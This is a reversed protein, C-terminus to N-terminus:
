SEDTEEIRGYLIADHDRAADDRGFDVAEEPIRWIPDAQYAEESLRSGGSEHALYEDLAERVVHAMSTDRALALRRIAQHQERLLYIQTRVESLKPM